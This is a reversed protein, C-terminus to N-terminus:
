FPVDDSLSPGTDQQQEECWRRRLGRVGRLGGAIGRLYTLMSSREGDGFESAPVGGGYVRHVLRGQTLPGRRSWRPASRGLRHERKRPCPNCATPPSRYLKRM